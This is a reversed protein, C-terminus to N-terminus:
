HLGAVAPANWLPHLEVLPERARHDLPLLAEAPALRGSSESVVSTRCSLELAEGRVEPVVREWACDRLPVELLLHLQLRPPDALQASFLHLQQRLGAVAPAVTLLPM